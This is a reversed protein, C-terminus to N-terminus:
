AVRVIMQGKDGADVIARAARQRAIPHPMQVRLWVRGDEAIRGNWEEGLARVAARILDDRRPHDPELINLFLVSTTM